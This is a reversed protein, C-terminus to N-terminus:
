SGNSGVVEIHKCCVPHSLDRISLIQGLAQVNRKRSVAPPVGAISDLVDVYLDSLASSVQPTATGQAGPPSCVAYSDQCPARPSLREISAIISTALSLLGFLGVVISPQM